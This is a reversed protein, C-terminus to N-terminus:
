KKGIRLPGVWLTNKQKAIGFAGTVDTLTISKVQDLDLKGNDDTNGESLTFQSFALARHIPDSDGPVALTLAYHAGNKEELTIIIRASKAAAMDVIFNDNATDGKLGNVGKILAIYGGDGQKYDVRLAPTKTPADKERKMQVEGLAIWQLHSRDFADITGAAKEKAPAAETSATFDDLWVTHTGIHLAADSYNSEPSASLLPAFIALPDIIGINEVKDLDLQNNPDKPDDKDTTLTFDDPSLVIEQWEGKPIWLLSHYRGGGAETLAVVLPTDGDAKVQFRLSKMKALVGDPTARVLAGFPVPHGAADPLKNAITYTFEVAGKGSKAKGEATTVSMKADPGMVIWGDAKEEFEDKFVSSQAGVLGASLATLLLGVAARLGNQRLKM